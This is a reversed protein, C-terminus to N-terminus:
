DYYRGSSIPAKTCLYNLSIRRAYFGSSCWCFKGERGSKDLCRSNVHRNHYPVYGWKSM